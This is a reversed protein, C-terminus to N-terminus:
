KGTGASEPTAERQWSRCFDTSSNDAAQSGEAKEHVVEAAVVLDRPIVWLEGDHIVACRETSCELQRVEGSVGSEGSLHLRNLSQLGSACVEQAADRGVNEFPVILWLVILVSALLVISLLVPVASCAFVVGAAVILVEKCRRGLWFIGAPFSDLRSSLRESFVSRLSFRYRWFFLFAWFVFLLIVFVAIGPNLMVKLMAAGVGELWRVSIRMWGHLALWQLDVTSAPFDNYDLGFYRLYAARYTMGQMQFVWAVFAIVVGSTLVVNFFSDKRKNNSPENTADAM